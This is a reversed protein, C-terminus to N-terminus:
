YISFLHWVLHRHPGPCPMHILSPFTITPPPPKLSSSHNSSCCPTGHPQSSTLFLILTSGCLFNFLFVPIQQEVKPPRGSVVPPQPWPPTSLSCVNTAWCQWDLWALDAEGSGRNMRYTPGRWSEAQGAGGEWFFLLSFLFLTCPHGWVVERLLSCKARSSWLRPRSVCHAHAIRGSGSEENQEMVYGHTNWHGFFFFWIFSPGLIFM